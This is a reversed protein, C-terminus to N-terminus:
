RSPRRRSRRRVQRDAARGATVQLPPVEKGAAAKSRDIAKKLTKAADRGVAVLVKDDGIGVVMDLTDGVLPTLEPDPTPLSVTHLHIGQYTEASVKM